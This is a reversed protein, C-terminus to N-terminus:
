RDDEAVGALRRIALFGLRRQIRRGGHPFSQERKEFFVGSVRAEPIGPVGASKPRPDLWADPPEQSNSFGTHPARGVVGDMKFHHAGDSRLGWLPGALPLKASQPRRRSRSRLARKLTHLAGRNSTAGIRCVGASGARLATARRPPPIRIHGPDRNWRVHTDGMM